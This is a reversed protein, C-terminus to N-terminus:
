APLLGELVPGTDDDHPDAHRHVVKWEGGERRFVTTSRLSYSAPPEGGVSCRTREIAAVYGLDGSAGAAVVEWECSECDAFRAALHEFVGRVQDWGHGEMAAGFLTVPDRHSWMEFRPVPDGDHLSTETHHLRPLVEALFDDTESM